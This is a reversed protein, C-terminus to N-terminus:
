VSIPDVRDSEKYPRNTRGDFVYDTSLQILTCHTASCAEALNGAGRANVLMALKPESEAKDVQTYAAANICFDFSNQRFFEMVQDKDTIDLESRDSAILDLQSFGIGAELLCQGMQGAAGTILVRKM